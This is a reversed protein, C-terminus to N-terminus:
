NGWLVEYLTMPGEFGKMEYGGQSKFQYSKGTCIGRVIESVFIQDAQAKDVIRASLQVVTGFLDNDEVIPEGANLGIKLHLPLDPQQANHQMTEQQMQISADVGETVKSFSAMIGDGTHKVERGNFATLAARVIRNHVRVVEQAGADGLAQTMATSGAIDTFLVTIPGTAAEKKKPQNWEGMASELHKVSEDPDQFHTNMANRGAQFMQMYRPDQLLYEEYKDAFSTAHSKKFGMVRVSDALVKSQSRTDLDRKEALTECAGALFLNVGFKNFNDMKKDDTGVKKLAEGLFDMMYAKQKEAHPSLTEVGTDGDAKGYTDADLVIGRGQADVDADADGGDGHLSKKLRETTEAEANDALKFDDSGSMASDLDQRQAQSKTRQAKKRDSKPAAKQALPKAPRYRKREKSDLSEGRFFTYAMTAASLLFTAVFILFVVQGERQGTVRYGLITKGGLVEASIVACIAALCISFLTILLVKVFITTLSSKRTGSAAKKKKKKARPEDNFVDDEEDYDDDDDADAWGGGGGGGRETTDTEGDAAGAGKSKYIVYDRHTGESTDYVERIVKVSGVGGVDLQKAEEVAQDRQSGDFQAHISWRGHQEVQVEYHTQMAM